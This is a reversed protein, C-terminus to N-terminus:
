LDSGRPLTSQFKPCAKISTSMSMDSGRPLTSQFIVNVSNDTAFKHRERSPAHISIPLIVPFRCHEKTAGALSRPNFDACRWLRSSNGYTAGALSRPNFNSLAHWFIIKSFDSGRPLTSQFIGPRPRSPASACDSGRPLTSQFEARSLNASTPWLRERSPAHISISECSAETTPQKTAGALSRPNFNLSAM